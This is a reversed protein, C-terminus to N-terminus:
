GQGDFEGGKGYPIRCNRNPEDDKWLWDSLEMQFSDGYFLGYQKISRIILYNIPMWVPGRWNSNGGFLNSTSDGPDYQIDYQEGDVVVSYPNKQHYKSLARVGGDSLFEEENLVRKLLHELREKQVLSILLEEGDSKEENPWFRNNNKRYEEFWTIRKKFDPLKELTQQDITSVAFLSTLGVISHIRLPITEKGPVILTDYFFKDEEHWMSHSNLAEAILVFHEFFKTASDEFSIDQKAIELAMDMM